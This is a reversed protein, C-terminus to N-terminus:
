EPLPAHGNDSLVTDILARWPGEPTWIAVMDPRSYRPVM